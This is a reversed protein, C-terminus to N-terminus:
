TPAPPAPETHARKNKNRLEDPIKLTDLEHPEFGSSGLCELESLPFKVVYGDPTKYAFNRTGDTSTEIRAVFQDPPTSAWTEDVKSVSPKAM